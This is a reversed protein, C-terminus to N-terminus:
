WGMILNTMLIYGKKIETSTYDNIDTIDSVTHQHHLPAGGGEIIIDDVIDDVEDKTYVDTQPYVEEKNYVEDKRYVEDKGYVEDSKAYTVTRMDNKLSGVESKMESPLRYELGDKGFNIWYLNSETLSMFKVNGPNAPKFGVIEKDLYYGLILDERSDGDHIRSVLVHLRAKPIVCPEKLEDDFKQEADLPTYFDIMDGTFRHMFKCLITQDVNDLKVMAKDLYPYYKTIVGTRIRENEIATSLQNSIENGVATEFANKVANQARGKTVTIDQVNLFLVGM